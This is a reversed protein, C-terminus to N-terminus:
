DDVLMFELDIDFVFLAPTDAEHYRHLCFSPKFGDKKQVCFRLHISFRDRLPQRQCDMPDIYPRMGHTGAM